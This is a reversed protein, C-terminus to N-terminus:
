QLIQVAGRMSLTGGERHDPSASIGQPRNLRRGLVLLSVRVRMPLQQRPRLVGQALGGLQHLAQALVRAVAEFRM